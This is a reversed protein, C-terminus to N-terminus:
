PAFQLAHLKQYHGGRDVLEQHRGQEVIQGEHLVVILDAKQITSLRHAICITTRGIMLEELAAQVARESESDLASTAEDLVLIPANKLIARAIAIRQRQGGSLMVGREGILTEYGQSKEIIFDHAHAHRAAAEVEADTAESRGMRINSRITDNFLFTEQTVVSIQSRLDSTLVERIDVGGIRVAGSQPDYFRLLLSTLTTKGSGSAGVLAVLKGPPITLHISCLVPKTEYSFSVQDFHVMSGRAHLPKPATPEPLTTQTALLEFVRESAARSQELQSHLRVLSKLPKYMSLIALIVTLFGSADTRRQPDLALYIFILAIGVAGVFELLPGPIEMARVLRMYNGTFQQAIREFQRLVPKELNYAKVIRNGTFGELMLQSLDATQTQIALSSHRVRRSYIVIPAICIPLVVLSILTLHPQQWLLLALVSLLTVPDKLMVPLANSITGRLAETDNMLRSMLEGTRSQNFFGSPQNLLHAFLRVRLDTVARISVWQLLYINLYSLVGRLLFVFPVVAVLAILFKPQDITMGNSLGLVQELWRGVFDPAYQLKEALPSAGAAPFIIGFIFTISLIMLPEFLGSLVGMLVGLVLRGYYPKALVLIKLLFAAVIPSTHLNSATSAVGEVLPSYRNM